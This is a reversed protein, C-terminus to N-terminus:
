QRGNGSETIEFSYAGIKKGNKNYSLTYAGFPIDDFVVQEYNFLLSSVERGGQLLTVRGGKFQPYGIIIRTRIKARTAGTKEIEIAATIEEFRKQVLITDPAVITGSRVPAMHAEGLLGNAVHEKLFSFLSHFSDVLNDTITRGAGQKELLQVAKRTVEAPAQEAEPGNGGRVVCRSMALDELCLSCGGLHAEVAERESSSLCGEIYGALMEEDPCHNYQKM